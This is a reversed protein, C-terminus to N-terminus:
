ARVGESIELIVDDCEIRQGTTRRGWIALGAFDPDVTEGNKELRQALWDSVIWHELIEQDCDEGTDFLALAQTAFPGSSPGRALTAILESACGLVETAVLTEPTLPTHYSM